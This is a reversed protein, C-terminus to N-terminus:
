ITQQVYTSNNFDQKKSVKKYVQESVAKKVVIHHVTLTNSGRSNVIRERRQIFKSGRYDSSMIVFDELHSLDVGEADANSSYITANKFHQRLLLQEGIFHCMIGLGEHDGFTAKLYDVKETNGLLIYETDIKAVGSEIQHLSTREKMTSDCVLEIDLEVLKDRMMNHNILAFKDNLIENYLRKTDDNLEVYHLKDVAQLDKSIGADEQTMYVTFDNIIPMLKDAQYKNYQMIDRGMAKIYYPIGYARFYEYFNKFQSFPSFQSIAMQHYIGNPSEVIATGSLHIHPLEWCVRKIDKFRKTPKGLVGLNHSEDIIALQYKSPDIKNAQEYNVVTYNHKVSDLKTFMLWGGEEDVNYFRSTKDRVLVNKGKKDKVINGENDRKPPYGIANLQTFVIVDTIKDSKEATLIATYTKGCRPKGALYVYGKEKLLEWCIASFEIQHPDPIILAV